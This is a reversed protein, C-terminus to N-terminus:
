DDDDGTTAVGTIGCVADLEGFDDGDFEGPMPMFFAGKRLPTCNSSFSICAM